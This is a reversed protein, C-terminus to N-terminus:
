GVARARVRLPWRPGHGVGWWRCRSRSSRLGGRSCSRCVRRSSVTAADGGCERSGCLLLAPQIRLANMARKRRFGEGEGMGHVTVPLYLMWASTFQGSRSCHPGDTARELRKCAAAKDQWAWDCRAHTDTGAHGAMHQAARRRRGASPAALPPATGGIPFPARRRVRRLLTPHARRMAM